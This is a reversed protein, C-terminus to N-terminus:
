RHKFPTYPVLRKEITQMRLRAFRQLGNEIRVDPWGDGILPQAYRLFEDTVDIGSDAIWSKPLFRESNAVTRLSVKSYVASYPADSGRLITAMYGTGDTFAMDVAYAGVAYAEEIDVKSRDISTSRQLVGPVQGTANGRVPLKAKNLHNVVVQAATTQSAGYEIHGFGDRAEGLSGVDFGENVVVICRGSRNLEASVHETLTDLNHGSEAFYLQLPIERNPDALRSAATIFGSKRGMAQLVAIPESVCMGKNEENTNQIINAWYRAASAYGPTHDIITFAEDGLDNDITKPVGAVVLDYGKERALKAVKDATDMSDNGGIYFFYGVDHAEFVDLIRSFDEGCGDDLKYRCTGVAGSAPTHKLLELEAPDQSSLDIFDELLVGEIGHKVAYVTAIRDNYQFCRQVVGLLSANIVPSPGGGLAVIANVNKM